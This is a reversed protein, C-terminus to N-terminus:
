AASFLREEVTDMLSVEVRVSSPASNKLLTLFGVRDCFVRCPHPV